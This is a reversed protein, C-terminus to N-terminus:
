DPSANHNEKRLSRRRPESESRDLDLLAQGNTEERMAHAAVLM